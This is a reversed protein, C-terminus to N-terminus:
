KIVVVSRPSENGSRDVAALAITDASASLTVQSQHGPVTRFTWQGNNRTYLAYVFPREGKHTWSITLTDSASRDVTLTPPAPAKKDLWRSAPVLAPSAYLDQKLVLGNDPQSSNAPPMLAKMSFFVNGGAGSTQRTVRIQDFLEKGSGASAPMFRSASNGPWIHRKKQNQEVWFELLRQYPQASNIAWYLQPTFYDCWGERLWLKADAYLKDYQDFGTIGQPENPRSIGFPSIGFKVHKKERRTGRYIDEILENVNHRRWDDRSLKGGSKQYRQWSPDDPFDAFRAPQTSAPRTAARTAGRTAGRRTAPQTDPIRLYDPYPYFYDDIHVGDIDYRKVVDLFVALTHKQADEDGPDLWQWNNFSKVAHPMTKSVHTAATQSRSSSHRARYPNFWVHLEIGRKHSEEVWMALPDYYPDPAKGQQGTLYESWPELTSPYLADAVTRVQVVLANLNLDAARNVIAMLEKQQQETSLGPRSPWDINAVTAVWAARFERPAPPPEYQASPAKQKHSTCAPIIAILSLVLVFRNATTM